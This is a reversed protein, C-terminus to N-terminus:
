ESCTPRLSRFGRAVWERALKAMVAPEAIAITVDTELARTAEGREGGLLVRLPVGVCRAMADLLRDVREVLRGEMAAIHKPTLAGAILKRVRTHLPPDNFVLSTTHHEFLPSIGYKPFFEEHKDSSFTATDKYVAVVDGYRSLFVGGDAMRKVPAHTRLARYTPSADGALHSIAGAAVLLAAAIGVAPLAHPFRPSAPTATLTTPL